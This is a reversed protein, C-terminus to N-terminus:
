AEDQVCKGCGACTGEDDFMAEGEWVPVPFDRDDENEAPEIGVVNALRMMKADTDLSLFDRGVTNVVNPYRAM